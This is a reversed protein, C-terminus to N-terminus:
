NKKKENYQTILQSSMTPFAKKLRRTQRNVKNEKRLQKLKLADIDKQLSKADIQKMNLDNKIKELYSMKKTLENELEYFDKIRNDIKKMSIISTIGDVIIYSSLLIVVYYIMNESLNIVKNQIYPHVIFVFALALFGWYISNVICVRGKINWPRCSYDWYRKKFVVELFAGVIYELISLLFISGLFVLLWREKIPYFVLYLILGGLGYIPCFPGFLFGSNVLRKQSITKVVSELMWGLFSYIFFYIICQLVEREM